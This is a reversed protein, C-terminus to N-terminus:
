EEKKESADGDLKSVIAQAKEELAKKEEEEKKLREAEEAASKAEAEKDQIYKQKLAEAEQSEEAKKQEHERFFIDNIYRRLQQRESEGIGHIFGYYQSALTAFEPKKVVTVFMPVPLSVRLITGEPIPTECDFYIDNESCGKLIIDTEIEVYTIDSNKDIYVDTPGPQPLSPMIKARLMECMKLVMQIDIPEKVALISQYNLTAKLSNTDQDDANFIIIVPQYGQFVEQVVRTFAVLNPMDNYTHVIDANADREPKAVKELNWIILQPRVRSLERKPDALFPQNRFVFVYSDSLPQDEFFVGKKDVVLAKLFKPKSYQKHQNLWNMVATKSTQMKQSRDANLKQFEEETMEPTQEVPDAHAMQLFQTYEYNYYINEQSQSACMMLNSGLINARNWYNHVRLQQKQQMPFDSEIKLFNENMMAVKAPHYAKIPDALEALAFKHDEALLPFALMTIDFCVAELESSKLHVCPATTMISKIVMSSGQIYDCVGMVKTKDLSNHRILLRILHLMAVENQGMDIIVLKPKFTKIELVLSQIKTDEKEFAHKFDVEISPFLEKYKEVMNHYYTQDGGVYVIIPTFEEEEEEEKKSNDSNEAM